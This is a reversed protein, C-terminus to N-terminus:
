HHNTHLGDDEKLWLKVALLQFGSLVIDKFDATIM